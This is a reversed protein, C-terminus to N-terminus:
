EGAFKKPINCLDKIHDTVEDSFHKTLNFKDPTNGGAYHLLKILKNDLWLKGEKLEIREWSEWHKDWQGNWRDM